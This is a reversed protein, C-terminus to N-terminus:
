NGSCGNSGPVVYTEEPTGKQVQRFMKIRLFGHQSAERAHSTGLSNHALRGKSLLCETPGAAKDTQPIEEM